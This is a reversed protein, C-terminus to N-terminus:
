ARPTLLVHVLTRRVEAPPSARHLEAVALALDQALAQDGGGASRYAAWLADTAHEADRVHARGRAAGSPTTLAWTLLLRRRALPFRM